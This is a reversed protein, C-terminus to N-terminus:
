FGEAHVRKWGGADVVERQIGGATTIVYGVVDSNLTHEGGEGREDGGEAM